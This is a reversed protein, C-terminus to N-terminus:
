RNVGRPTWILYLGCGPCRTQRHTHAVSRGDLRPYANYTGSTWRGGYVHDAHLHRQPCNQRQDDADTM